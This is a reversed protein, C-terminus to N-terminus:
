RRESDTDSDVAFWIGGLMGALLYILFTMLGLAVAQANSQGYAGLFFMFGVERVGLGGLSLPLISLLSVLPVIFFWAQWDLSIGLGTAICITVLIITIQYVVSYLTLKTRKMWDLNSITRRVLKKLRRTLSARHTWRAMVLIIFASTFTIKLSSWLVARLSVPIDEIIAAFSAIAVFIAVGILREAFVFITAKNFTVDHGTLWLIRMANGGLATPLVSNFFSAFYYYKIHQELTIKAIPDLLIKFRAAGIVNSILILGLAAYLWNFTLSLGRIASLDLVYFCYGLLVASILLKVPFAYKVVYNTRM